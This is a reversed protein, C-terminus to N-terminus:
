VPRSVWIYGGGLEIGMPADGVGVRSRITGSSPDISSVTGDITEVIWVADPATAIDAPGQGIPYTTPQLSTPDMVTLLGEDYSAVWVKGDESVAIATPVGRLGPNAVVADTAADIKWMAPALGDGVWVAGDGVAISEPSGSGPPGLPITDVVDGGVPDVKTVTVDLSNTVWV